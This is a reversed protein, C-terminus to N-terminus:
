RSRPTRQGFPPVDSDALCVDLELSTLQPWEDTADLAQADREAPSPKGDVRSTADGDPKDDRM